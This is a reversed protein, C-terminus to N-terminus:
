GSTDRRMADGIARVTAAPVEGVVTIRRGEIRRGYVHVAGMRSIGELAASESGPPEVFVSVSALGDSYVSQQVMTRGPPMPRRVHSIARFGPPLAGAVWEPREIEASDVAAYGHRTYTVSEMSPEFQRRSVGELPRIRTFLIRELPTGDSALLDSRLLLHTDPDIWMRYGYRFEDASHIEVIRARRGAARDVAGLVASYMRPLEDLETLSRLPSITDPRQSILARKENPWVCTVADGARILEFPEGSLTRMREHESGDIWGHLLSMSDISNGRQYVLIGEYASGRMTESMRALMAQPEAAHAVGAALALVFGTLTAAITANSARM